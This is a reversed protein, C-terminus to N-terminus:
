KAVNGGELHVTLFSPWGDCKMSISEAEVCTHTMEMPVTM